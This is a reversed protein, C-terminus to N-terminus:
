SGNCFGAELLDCRHHGDDKGFGDGRVSLFGFVRIFTGHIFGFHPARVIHPGEPQFALILGGLPDQGTHSQQKFCSFPGCGPHDSPDM